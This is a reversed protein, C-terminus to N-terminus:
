DNERNRKERNQRKKARNARNKERKAEKQNRAEEKQRADRRESKPVYIREPDAPVAVLDLGSADVIECSLIEGPVLNRGTVYVVPDVDPADAATRGLCVNAMPEGSEAIAFSDLIVDLTKGVQGRAVQRSVREQRAYLRDFRRKKTTADVQDPMAFAPTGPEPSFEFVGVREFRQKEVFELLEQFMEDTEGPFGVIFSTRLVLEPINERLRALLEETQAKDVRRNMRKLLESNCHQLPIDVYPLISTTGPEERKFLGILEDDWFLPYTYLVRIWDFLNREKLAALLRSLDPKGYLDSGWFTTEQAILVLERVGSDALRKAEDLIAEYPKSVYRGRINPIACYSCFRDCGDAIKLYAVHPATLPARVSDDLTLNRFSSAFVRTNSADALEKRAREVESPTLVDLTPLPTEETSSPDAEDSTPAESVASAPASEVIEVIRSEDNPGIWADVGPYLRALEAGDSVVACGSVVLRRIAGARKQKLAERIYEEAEQRASRLFGCTNILFLDVVDAETTMVYGAAKLRGVMSESDVLNKPCGLSAISATKVPRQSSNVPNTTEPTTM